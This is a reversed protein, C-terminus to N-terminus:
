ADRSDLVRSIINLAEDIHQQDITLAPACRLVNTGASGVLLGEEQCAAVLGAVEGEFEIGVLLGLGRVDKIDSHRGQLSRLGDMLVAGSSAARDAIGESLMKRVVATAVHCVVPNAGFTSGHLGPKLQDAVHPKMMVAGIPLGGGLPKALTMVDPEIGSHQYAFFKGTRCLGCQIEDFILAVNREDCLERIKSLFELQATNVGGEGQLPELLVAATKEKSITQDLAALDNFPLYVMGPLMPAFGEHYKPQATASIAGYTRGHFSNEFSVIEHKAEGGEAFAWRRSFKLAAEISESGSNCFFVKSEFANEVLLQALIAHPATHYLNSVHMLKAAQQSVAGIIEPVAHGLSNVAIGGIFDLYRKGDLDYIYNGSGRDLVIGPRGYTPALYQNELDIIQQTTM